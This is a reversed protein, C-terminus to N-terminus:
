LVPANARLSGDVRRRPPPTKRDNPPDRAAGIAAAGSAILGLGKLKGGRGRATRRQQCAM